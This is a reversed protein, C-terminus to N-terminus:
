PHSELLTRPRDDSPRQWIASWFGEHRIVDFTTFWFIKETLAATASRLSRMREPSNTVVLVRFQASGFQQPSSGGVAYRVYQEVKNRWVSRPETGLDVELFAALVRDQQAIEIYGDPILPTGTELPERFSVWRLFRVEPLPIQRYKVLCFIENVLLQHSIFFDAVLVEDDRRRLGPQTVRGLRQGEPALTYLAKKGGAETGIFFRRLLGARKLALLRTNARTTSKFGGLCKAQERDIVRRDGLERLLRRDREQLILGKTRNGTM